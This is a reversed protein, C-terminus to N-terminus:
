DLLGSHLRSSHARPQRPRNTTTDERSPLVISSPTNQQVPSAPQRWGIFVESLARQINSLQYSKPLTSHFRHSVPGIIFTQRYFIDYILLYLTDYTCYLTLSLVSLPKKTSISPLPRQKHFLHLRPVATRITRFLFYNEYERVAIVQVLKCNVM